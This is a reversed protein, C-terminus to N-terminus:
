QIDCQHQAKGFELRTSCFSQCLGSGASQIPRRWVAISAAGRLM